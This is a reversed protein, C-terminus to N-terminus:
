CRRRIIVPSKAQSTFVPLRCYASLLMSKLECILTAKPFQPTAFIFSGNSGSFDLDLEPRKNHSSTKTHSLPTLTSLTYNNILPSHQASLNHSTAHQPTIHTPSNNRICTRTTLPNYRTDIPNRNPDLQRNHTPVIDATHLTKQGSSLKHPTGPSPEVHTPRRIHGQTPTPTSRTHTVTAM